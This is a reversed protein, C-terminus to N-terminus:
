VRHFSYQPFKGICTNCRHVLGFPVGYKKMSDLRVTHHHEHCFFSCLGRKWTKNSEFGYKHVISVFIEVKHDAIIGGCGVYILFKEDLHAFEVLEHTDALGRPKNIRVMGEIVDAPYEVVRGLAFGVYFYIFKGGEGFIFYPFRINDAHHFGEVFLLIPNCILISRGAKRKLLGKARM